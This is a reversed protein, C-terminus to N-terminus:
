EIVIKGTQIQQQNNLLVYVYLGSEFERLDLTTAKSIKEKLVTQGLANYIAVEGKDINDGMRITLKDKAPNPFVMSVNPLMIEDMGVAASLKTLFVDTHTYGTLSSGGFVGNDLLAGTAYVNGADGCVAIGSEYGGGIDYTDATGGVTKAWLFNGSNDLAAIFIDSSDAAVLNDSGFFGNLGYQGTIYITTGDCGIGRARDALSGGCNKVWQFNGDQDYCAVFADAVGNTWTDGNGFNAGSFEGAVYLKGANDKTLSWALDTYEGGIEKVWLLTGNPDYKAIYGNYFKGFDTTATTYTNSGFMTSDSYMGCVYVNGSADCVLSKGEERGPGGASKMWLFNGTADYKAVFMDEEGKSVTFNSGFKTSDRFYGCIVINGSNDYAIGLAKENYIYGDTRAWQLNGSLDYAAIFVDNDGQPHLTITSGPFTITANGDEVEGAIYVNSTKNCTLAHAYDGNFGGGTRIWNLNGAPSYQAVYIDHNGQNPLVTGSFIANEEYKGAIYVNGASDTAIGYGYDYAYKGEVKAWQFNQANIYNLVITLLGFVYIKKM